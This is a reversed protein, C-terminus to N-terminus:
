DAKFFPGRDADLLAGGAKSFPLYGLEDLVVFDVSALRSALTGSKGQEKEQELQNVLDIVSIYRGRNGLKVCHSGIAIALHTKGTGTGGYCILSISSVRSEQEVYGSFPSAIEILSSQEAQFVEWVTRDKDEPHSRKKSIALCQEALWTNLEEFDNFRPRPTFLWERINKVQKEVQGKEWGAAPTCAVPEVLYHSCLRFFRRNFKREKGKLVKQAVGDLVVSEHSWDFQYADGAEFHLPIYASKSTKGKNTAM